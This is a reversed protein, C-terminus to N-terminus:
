PAAKLGRDRVAQVLARIHEPGTGCCGGLVNVPLKALTEFREAMYEPSEPYETGGKLVKPIGANSKVWLYQPSVARMRQAIEIMRDIGSGCNTGVVDAGAAFLDTAAKEPTDGMMTFYGRPGKDFTMSSIVALHTNERAARVATKAEDLALQTEIVVADAGGEELATMQDALADYMEEQSVDGLPAIFAGTPGVSGVVFRGSPAVARAHEAALRNLERVRQASGHLMLRFKNAGFSNTLVLDSGADYYDKAMQRILGPRSVNLLEPAAGPELGHQQLYTGTAGDAILIDGAALRQLIPSTVAGTRPLAERTSFDDGMLHDLAGPTANRRGTRELETVLGVIDTPFHANYKEALMSAREHASGPMDVFPGTEWSELYADHGASGDTMAISDVARQFRGDLPV